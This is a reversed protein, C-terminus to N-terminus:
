MFESSKHMRYLEDSSNNIHFIYACTESALCIFKQSVAKAIKVITVFATFNPKKTGKYSNIKLTITFKKLKGVKLKNNITSDVTFNINCHKIKSGKNKFFRRSVIALL